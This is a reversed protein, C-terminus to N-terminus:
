PCAVNVQMGYSNAGGDYGFVNIYFPGNEAATLTVDETDTVGDSVDLLMQTADMIALDVDGDAHVFDLHVSAICGADMQLVYWDEDPVCLQLAQFSSGPDVSRATELTDNDELDDDVCVEVAECAGTDPNCSEGDACIVDVCADPGGLCLDLAGADCGAAAACVRQDPTSGADCGAVCEGLADPPALGCDILQQCIADCTPADLAVCGGTAPDCSEGEACVVDLCLDGVLEFCATVAAEDCGSALVCARREIVPDEECAAVCDAIASADGFGCEILLYECSVGCTPPDVPLCEGTAEDCATGEACEVFACPGPEAGGAGGGGGVPESGGSGGVPESGGSGGVPEGGSGGAIAGGSGGVPEGGSGGQVAGGSGGVPEGGSGGPLAGGAGGIPAGGSGGTIIAGGNGGAAEGGTGPNGGTEGGGVGSDAGGASGDDIQCGGLVFAGTLAVAGWQIIKM